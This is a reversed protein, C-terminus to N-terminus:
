HKYLYVLSETHIAESIQWSSRMKLVRRASEQKKRGVGDQGGGLVVEQRARKQKDM